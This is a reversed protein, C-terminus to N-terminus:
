IYQIFNGGLVGLINSDRKERKLDYSIAGSKRKPGGEEGGGCIMRVQLSLWWSM